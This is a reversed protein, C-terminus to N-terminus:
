LDHIADDLWEDAIDWSDDVVDCLNLWMDQRHCGSDYDYYHTDEDALTKELAWNRVLHKYRDNDLLHERAYWNGVVVVRRTNTIQGILNSLETDTLEGLQSVIDRYKERM